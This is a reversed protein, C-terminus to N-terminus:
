VLWAELLTSHKFLGFSIQMFALTIPTPWCPPAEVKSLPCTANVQLSRSYCQSKDKNTKIHAKLQIVSPICSNTAAGRSPKRSWQVFSSSTLSASMYSSSKLSIPSFNRLSFIFDALIQPQSLPLQGVKLLAMMPKVFFNSKQAVSLALKTASTTHFLFLFPSVVLHHVRKYVLTNWLRIHIQWCFSPQCQTMCCSM